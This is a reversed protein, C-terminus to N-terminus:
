LCFEFHCKNVILPVAPSLARLKPLRFTLLAVVLAPVANPPPLIKPDPAVAEFGM